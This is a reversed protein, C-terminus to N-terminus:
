RRLDRKSTRSGSNKVFISFFHRISTGRGANRQNRLSEAFFDFAPADFCHKRFTVKRPSHVFPMICNAGNITPKKTSKNDHFARISLVPKRSVVVTLQRGFRMFGNSLM